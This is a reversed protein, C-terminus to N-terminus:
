WFVDCCRKGALWIGAAYRVWGCLLCMVGGAVDYSLVRVTLCCWSVTM